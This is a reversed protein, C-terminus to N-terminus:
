FAILASPLTGGRGDMRIFGFRIACILRFFCNRQDPQHVFELLLPRANAFAQFCKSAQVIPQEIPLFLIKIERSNQLILFLLLVFM